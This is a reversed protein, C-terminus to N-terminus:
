NNIKAKSEVPHNNISLLRIKKIMTCRRNVVVNSSQLYRKIEADVAERLRVRGSNRGELNIRIAGPKIKELYRDMSTFFRLAVSIIHAPLLNTAMMEKHIGIKLPRPQSVNFADPWIIRVLRLAETNMVDSEARTDLRVLIKRAEAPLQSSSDAISQAQIDQESINSQEATM